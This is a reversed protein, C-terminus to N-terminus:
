AEGKFREGQTLGRMDAGWEKRGVAADKAKILEDERLDEEVWDSDVGREEGELRTCDEIM